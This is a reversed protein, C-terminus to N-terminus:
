FASLCQVCFTECRHKRGYMFCAIVKRLFGIGDPVRHLQHLKRKASEPYLAAWLEHHEEILSRLVPLREVIGADVRLHWVILYLLKYCKVHEPLHHAVDPFHDMFLVMIFIISSM